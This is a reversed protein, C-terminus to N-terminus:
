LLHTLQGSVSINRGNAAAIIVNIIIIIIFFIFFFFLLRFTTYFLIIIIVGRVFVASGFVAGFSIELDVRYRGRFKQIPLLM